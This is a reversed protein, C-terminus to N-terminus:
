SSRHPNSHSELNDWWVQCGDSLFTPSNMRRLLSTFLPTKDLVWPCGDLYGGLALKDSDHSHAAAHKKILLVTPWSKSFRRVQDPGWLWFISFPELTKWSTSSLALKLSFLMLIRSLLETFCMSKDTHSVLFKAQNWAHKCSLIADRVPIAVEKNSLWNTEPYDRDMCTCWLFLGSSNFTIEWCNGIVHKTCKPSHCLLLQFSNAISTNSKWRTFDLQKLTTITCVAPPPPSFLCM